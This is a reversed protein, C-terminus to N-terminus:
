KSQHMYKSDVSFEIQQSRMYVLIYQLTIKMYTYVDPHKDANCKQLEFFFYFSEILVTNNKLLKLLFIHLMLANFHVHVHISANSTCM